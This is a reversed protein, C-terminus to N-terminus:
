RIAMSFIVIPFLDSLFIHFLLPGLISGQPIGFLINSWPSYSDNIKTRQKRNALHNQLLNLAPLSFEYANLKAIVLDHALCDFAKSLDILLAFFLSQQHRCIEEVKGVHCSPLASCYIGKSLSM